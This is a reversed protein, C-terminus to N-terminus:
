DPSFKKKEIKDFEFTVDVYNRELPASIEKELGLTKLGLLILTFHEM